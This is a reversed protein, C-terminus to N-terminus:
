SMPRHHVLPSLFHFCFHFFMFMGCLVDKVKVKLSWVVKGVMLERELGEKIAFFLSTWLNSFVVLSSAYAIMLPRFCRLMKLMKSLLPGLRSLKKLYRKLSLLGSRDGEWPTIKKLKKKVGIQIRTRRISHVTYNLKMNALQPNPKIQQWANHINEKPQYFKKEWTPQRKQQLM